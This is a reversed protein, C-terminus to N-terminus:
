KKRTLLGHSALVELMADLAQAYSELLANAEELEAHAECCTSM